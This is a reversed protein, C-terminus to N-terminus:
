LLDLAGDLFAVKHPDATSKRAERLMEIAEDRRSAAAAAVLYGCVDLRETAAV